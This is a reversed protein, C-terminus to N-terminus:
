DTMEPEKSPQSVSSKETKRAFYTALVPGVILMWVSFLAPLLAALPSFFAVALATALGSNQLGVEFTCARVRGESMNTARGVTYGSVLGITNHIIVAALAIASVTLINEANLGVVAAVIVVIAIVSISPFVALSAEAATPAKREMLHRITLGAVVPLLVILVISQFMEAFTVQIQAGALFLVWAPMVIPAAITTLSTITVSLAVDGKGLYTMVNSSTGGPAAGVLIIGIGIATPFNFIQVLLYATVPMVTWQALAGIAVDRPREIIRKLDDPTLTLGMGLMVIGLLPSIYNGIWTFLEPQYLALLSAVIVWVVFYKNIFDSIQEIKTLTNM